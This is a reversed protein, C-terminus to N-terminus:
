SKLVEGTWRDLKAWYACQPCTSGDPYDIGEEHPCGVIRGAVAVRQVNQQKIFTLIENNIARDIRVDQARVFWRKLEVVEDKHNVIGVAVKHGNPRRARLLRHNCHSLRETSQPLEQSVIERRVKCSENSVSQCLTLAGGKEASHHVV